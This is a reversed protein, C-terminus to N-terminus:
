EPIKLDPRKERLFQKFEEFTGKTFGNPDLLIILRKSKVLEYTYRLHEVKNIESYEWYARINGQSVEIMDGFAVRYVGEGDTDKKYRKISIYANIEPMFLGYILYAVAILFFVSWTGEFRYWIAAPVAYVFFGIGLVLMLMCMGPSYKRVRAAVMKVTLPFECEFQPEM